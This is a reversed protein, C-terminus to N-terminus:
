GQSNVSEKQLLSLKGRPIMGGSKGPGAGAEEKLRRRRKGNRRM